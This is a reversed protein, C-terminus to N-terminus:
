DMYKKDYLGITVSYWDIESNPIVRNNSFNLVNKKELNRLKKLMYLCSAKSFKSLMEEISIGGDQGINVLAYHTIEEKEGVLIYKEIPFKGNEIMSKYKQYNLLNRYRVTGYIHGMAGVGLPIINNFVHYQPRGQINRKIDLYPALVCSDEDIRQYGNEELVEFACNQLIIMKQEQEPLFKGHVSKYRNVHIQDPKLKILEKIDNIMIRHETYIGVLLDVGIKIGYKKLLKFATNIKNIDQIRNQQKLINVDFTQIGISVFNVYHDKIIKIKDETWLDINSEMSLQRLKSLNFNLGIGILMKKLAHESLINPTGGGIYITDIPINKIATNSYLKFERVLYEHYKELEEKNTLTDLFCFKCKKECFPINIYIGTSNKTSNLARLIGAQQNTGYERWLSVSPYHTPLRAYRIGHIKELFKEKKDMTSM